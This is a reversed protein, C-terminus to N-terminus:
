GTFNCHVPKTHLISQRTLFYKTRAKQCTINSLDKIKLSHFSNNYNITNSGSFKLGHLARSLIRHIKHYNEQNGHSFFNSMEYTAAIGAFQSNKM